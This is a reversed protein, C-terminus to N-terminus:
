STIPVRDFRRLQGHAGLSQEGALGSCRMFFGRVIGPSELKLKPNL